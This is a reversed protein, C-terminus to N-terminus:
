DITAPDLDASDEVPPRASCRALTRALERTAAAHDARSRRLAMPTTDLARYAAFAEPSAVGRELYAEAVLTLLAHLHVLENKNV